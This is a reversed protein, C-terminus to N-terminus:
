FSFDAVESPGSLGDDAQEFGSPPLDPENLSEQTIPNFKEDVYWLFYVEDPNRKLSKRYLASHYGEASDGEPFTDPGFVHMVRNGSGRSTNYLIVCDRELAFVYNKRELVAEVEFRPHKPKATKSVTENMLANFRDKVESLNMRFGEVIFLRSLFLVRYSEFRYGRKGISTFRKYM